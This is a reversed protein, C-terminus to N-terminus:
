GHQYFEHYNICYGPQWGRSYNNTMKCLREKAAQETIPQSAMSNLEVRMREKTSALFPGNAIWEMLLSLMSTGM